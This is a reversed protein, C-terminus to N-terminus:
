KRHKRFAATSKTGKPKPGEAKKKPAKIASIQKALGAPPNKIRGGLIAGITSPDRNTKAAIQELTLGKNIASKVAKKTANGTKKGEDGKMQKKAM